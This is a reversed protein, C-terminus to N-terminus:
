RRYSAGVEFENIRPFTKTPSEAIGVIENMLKLEVERPSNEFTVEPFLTSKLDDAIPMEFVDYWFGQIDHYYPENEFLTLSGDKNRAIWLKM